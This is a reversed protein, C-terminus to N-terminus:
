SCKNKVRFFATFWNSNGGSITVAVTVTEGKVVTPNSNDVSATYTARGSEATVTYEGTPLDKIVTKEKTLVVTISKGQGTVTVIAPKTNDGDFTLELDGTQRKWVAYLTVEETDHPKGQTVQYINQFQPVTADASTAWGLFDYNERTPVQTWQFTYTAADIWNTDVDTPMNGVQDTTNDEFHLTYRYQDTWQAVLEINGYKGKDIAQSADYDGAAWNGNPATLSTALKWSKFEYGDRTPAQALTLDDEIDYSVTSTTPNTDKDNHNYTITYTNKTWSGTFTVAKAPMTFKGDTGVTVDATTWGNFTYGALTPAKAVTVSAGTDVTAEAPLLANAGDPIEGTYQYTVSYSANQKYYFTIVNNSYGATVSQTKAGVLTYNGITEPATESYVQDFTAGNVVKDDQVNETTGEKYYHVTYTADTMPTWHAYLTLPATGKWRKNADWYQTGPICIGSDKAADQAEDTDGYYVQTGGSAADFWGAFDYGERVPNLWKVEYYDTSGTKAPHPGSATANNESNKGGNYNFNLAYENASWKAYLTVSKTPTYTAGPNGAKVTLNEDEYWGELTYGTKTVATKSPLTVSSTATWQAYLPFTGAAETTLNNVNQTNTYSIGSGDAKTNWSAFKTSSTASSATTGGKSDYSVTFTAATFANANLNQATGYVFAQDSMTGGGGNPKFSVKYRSYLNITYTTGDFSYNNGTNSDYVAYYKSSDYWSFNLGNKNYVNAADITRDPFPVNNARAVENGNLKVVVNRQNMGTSTRAHISVTVLGAGSGTLKIATSYEDIYIKTDGSKKKFGFNNSAKSVSQDTSIDANEWSRIHYWYGGRSVTVASHELGATTFSGYVNITDSEIKGNAFKMQITATKQPKPFDAGEFRVINDYAEFAYNYSADTVDIVITHEDEFTIILTEETSFAKLSTLLWDGDSLRETTVLSNDSFVVSTASFADENIGMASFLESLKISTLGAISYDTGEYHFDVTFGAFESFSDTYFEVTNDSLVETVGMFTDNHLIGIKTGARQSVPIKVLAAEPQYQSSDTNVLSIDLGFVKNAAPIGFDGLQASVDAESVELKVGEPLTEITVEVNTEPDTLTPYEPEVPDTPDTPDTEEPQCFDCKGCGCECGEAGTCNECCACPNEPTSPTTPDTPKVEPLTVLLTDLYSGVPIDNQYVWPKDKLAAPLEENDQAKLEYWYGDKAVYCDNIVFTQNMLGKLSITYDVSMNLGKTPDDTIYAVGYTTNEGSGTNLAPNFKATGEKYAAYDEGEAFSMVPLMGVLMLLALALCFIRKKM